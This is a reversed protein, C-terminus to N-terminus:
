NCLLKKSCNLQFVDVFASHYQPAKDTVIVSPNLSGVQHRLLSLFLSLATYTERNCLLWAVPIGERYEDIVLVTILKFDYANMGHTADLCIIHNGLKKLMGLQFETMIGIAFDDKELPCVEDKPHYLRDEGQKKYLFVSSENELVYADVSLYRRFTKRSQRHWFFQCHEKIDQKTTLQQRELNAPFM